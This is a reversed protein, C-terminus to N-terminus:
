ILRGFLVRARCAAQGILATSRVAVAMLAMGVFRWAYAGEIGRRARKSAGIVSISNSSIACATAAKNILLLHYKSRFYAVERRALRSAACLRREIRWVSSCAFDGGM